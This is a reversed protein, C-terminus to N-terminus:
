NIWPISLGVVVALANWVTVRSMVWDLPHARQAGVFRRARPWEHGLPATRDM